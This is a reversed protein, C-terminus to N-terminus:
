PKGQRFSVPHGGFIVAQFIVENQFIRNESAISTEPLTDMPKGQYPRILDKHKQPSNTPSPTPQGASGIFISFHQDKPELPLGTIIPKSWSSDAHGAVFNPCKWNVIQTQIPKVLGIKSFSQSKGYLDLMRPDHVGSHSSMTIDTTIVMMMMMMMVMMMMMMVLMMMMMMMMMIMMMMVMFRLMVFNMLGISGLHSEWWLYWWIVSEHTLCNLDIHLANTKDFLDEKLQEKKEQLTPSELESDPGLHYPVLCISFFQLMLCWSTYFWMRAIKNSLCFEETAVWFFVWYDSCSDLGEFVAQSNLHPTSLQQRLFCQWYDGRSLSLLMCICICTYSM